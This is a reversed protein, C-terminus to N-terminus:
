PAVFVDFYVIGVRAAIICQALLLMAVVLVFTLLLVGHKPRTAQSLSAMGAQQDAATSESPWLGLAPSIRFVLLFGMYANTLVAGTILAFLIALGSQANALAWVCSETVLWALFCVVPFLRPVARSSFTTNDRLMKSRREREMALVWFIIAAVYPLLGLAVHIHRLLNM